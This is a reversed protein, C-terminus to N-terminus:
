VRWCAVAHGSEKEELTPIITQCEAVALPCRPAFVCGGVPPPVDLLEGRIAQARTLDGPELSPAASMLARTYPHLPQEYLRRKPAVEVLKGLYMVGIQDSMHYISRLDHSIL